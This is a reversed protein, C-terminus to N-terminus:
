TLEVDSNALTVLEGKGNRLIPFPYSFDCKRFTMMEYYENDYGQNEAKRQRRGIIYRPITVTSPVVYSSQKIFRKEELEHLTELVRKKVEVSAATNGEGVAARAQLPLSVPRAMSNGVTRNPDRVFDLLVGAGGIM